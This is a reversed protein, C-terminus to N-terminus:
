DDKNNTDNKKKFTKKHIFEWYEEETVELLKLHQKIIFEPVPSKQNLTIPRKLGPRKWNEHDGKGQYKTLGQNELFKRHKSLSM